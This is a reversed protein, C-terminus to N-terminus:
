EGGGDVRHKILSHSVSLQEIALDVSEQSCSFMNAYDSASFDIQTLSSIRLIMPAVQEPSLEVQETALQEAAAELADEDIQELLYAAYSSNFDIVKHQWKVVDVLSEVNLRSDDTIRQWQSYLVETPMLALSASRSMVSGTIRAVMDFSGADREPLRINTSTIQTSDFITLPNM